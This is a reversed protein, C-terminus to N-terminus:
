NEKKVGVFRNGSPGRRAASLYVCESKIPKLTILCTLLNNLHPRLAGRRRHGDFRSIGGVDRVLHWYGYRFL